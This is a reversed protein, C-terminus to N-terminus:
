EREMTWENHALVVGPNPDPEVLEGRWSFVVAAGVPEPPAPAAAPTPPGVAIGILGFLAVLGTIGNVILSAIEM